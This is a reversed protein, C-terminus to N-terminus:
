LYFYFILLPNKKFLNAINLRLTTKKKNLCILYFLLVPIFDEILTAAHTFRESNERKVQECQFLSDAM